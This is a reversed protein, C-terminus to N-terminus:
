RGLLWGYATALADRGGTLVPEGHGVILRDFPRELIARLSRRAAQKDDFATWRIVRSLAIRDHFGMLRAYTATWRHAPRGVNCVLDGVVLTRSPRHFLETERLRFGAVPLEDVVGAFGPEVAPETEAGPRSPGKAPAPAGHIRDVRLGPRKKTLGAPAHVRAAPFAAAWEGLWLHHFLNPAYLHAVTGLGEVAARREPTLPVPSYVLLDRGGLRLVVMTSTLRLGLFSIPTWSTWVGDAIPVLAETPPAAGVASRSTPGGGPRNVKSSDTVKAEARM